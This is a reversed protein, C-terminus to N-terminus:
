RPRILMVFCRTFRRSCFVAQIFAEVYRVLMFVRSKLLILISFTSALFIMSGAHVSQAADM